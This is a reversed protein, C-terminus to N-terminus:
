ARPIAKRLIIKGPICPGFVTSGQWAGELRWPDKTKNLTLVAQKICWEMGDVKKAALIKTEKLQLIKGAILVGEFEMEAYVKDFYVFTRGIVKDGTQKIHLEMGYEPRYGGQEQTIVGRWTGSIDVSKQSFCITLISCAVLTFLLKMGVKEKLFQKGAFRNYTPEIKKVDCVYLKFIKM